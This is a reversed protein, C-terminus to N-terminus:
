GLRLRITGLIGYITDPPSFTSVNLVLANTETDTNCTGQLSIKATARDIVLATGSTTALFALASESRYFYIYRHLHSSTAMKYEVEVQIYNRRDVVHEKVEQSNTEQFKPASSVDDQLPCQNTRTV